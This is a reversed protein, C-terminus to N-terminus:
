CRILTLRSGDEAPTLGRWAAAAPEPSYYVSIYVCCIVPSTQLQIDNMQILKLRRQLPPELLPRRLFSIFVFHLKMCLPPVGSLLFRYCTPDSHLIDHYGKWKRNAETRVASCSTLSLGCTCVESTKGTMNLKIFRDKIFGVDWFPKGNITKNWRRYLIKM